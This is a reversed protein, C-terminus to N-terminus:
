YRLMKIQSREKMIYVPRQIVTRSMFFDKFMGTQLM